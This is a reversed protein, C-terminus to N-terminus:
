KNLKELWSGTLIRQLIIPKTWKLTKQDLLTPVDFVNLKKKFYLIFAHYMIRSTTMLIGLGQLVNFSRKLSWDRPAWSITSEFFMGEKNALDVQISYQDALPNVVLHYTDGLPNFPSVHFVKNVQVRLPEQPNDWRFAYSHKQGFTNNIEMVFINRSIGEGIYFTVPNFVKGLFKPVTHMWIKNPHDDIGEEELVKQIKARISLKDKSLYDGPDVKFFGKKIPRDIRDVDLIWYPTQYTFEHVIPQSRRHWILGPSWKM